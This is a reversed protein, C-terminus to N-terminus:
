TDCHSAYNCKTYFAEVDNRELKQERRMRYHLIHSVNM